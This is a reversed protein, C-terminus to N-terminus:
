ARLRWDLRFRLGKTKPFASSRTKRAIPIASERSLRRKDLSGDGIDFTSDDSADGGGFYLCYEMIDGVYEDGEVTFSFQIESGGLDVQTITVGDPDVEKLLYYGNIDENPPDGFGTPRNIESPGSPTLPIRRMPAQLGLKSNPYSSEGVLLTRGDEPDEPKVSPPDGEDGAGFGVLAIRRNRWTDDGESNDARGTILQPALQRPLWERFLNVVLNENDIETTELYVPEDVGVVQDDEYVYIDVFGRVGRIKDM